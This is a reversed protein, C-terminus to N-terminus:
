GRPKTNVEKYGPLANTRVNKRQRALIDQFENLKTLSGGRTSFISDVSPISQRISNLIDPNLRKLQDETAVRGLMNNRIETARRQADSFPLTGAGLVSSKDAIQKLEQASQNLDQYLTESSKVTEASGPLARRIKGDINVADKQQDPDLYPLAAPDLGGSNFSQLAQQKVRYLAQQQLEGQLGLRGAIAKNALEGSAQQASAQAAPGQFTGATQALKAAAIDQSQAITAQMALRADGLQQLNKAYLSQKNEKDNRQAEVDREIAKDIVQHALNQQGSMGAGAGSIILALASGIQNGTSKSHWFRNPDLPKALDTQLQQDSADLAAKQTAFTTQADQIAKVHDSQTAANQLGAQGAIKAAANLGDQQMQTNKDFQALLPDQSADPIQPAGGSAQAQGAAAAAQTAAVAQQAPTLPSQVTQSVAAPNGVSTTATPDGAFGMVSHAFTKVGQGLGSLANGAQGVPDAAFDDLPSPTSPPLSDDPINSEQVEGGDAFHQPLKMLNQMMPLDLGHKAIHFTSGDPHMVEISHPHATILKYNKM